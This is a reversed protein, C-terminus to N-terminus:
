IIGYKDAKQPLSKPQVDKDLQQQYFYRVIIGSLAIIIMTIILVKDNLLTIDFVAAALFWLVIFVASYIFTTYTNYIGQAQHLFRWVERGIYLWLWIFLGLGIIGTEVVLQLYLSHASVFKRPLNYRLNKVQSLQEYSAQEPIDGVLSVIFNGYGVGLPHNAAFRLSEEWIILRGQNSQEQLDYITKAREIFNEQFGNSRIIALGRNILPSVIFLLLILFYSVLLKRMVPRSWNLLYAAASILMPPIMGVWMARTGSLILALGALRIGYWLWYARSTITKWLGKVSQPYQYLLPLLLGMALVSIMAFSHSDPMISFMRLSKGASGESFWSNSYKLVEALGNGYYAQSVWTAWYQWFYYQDTFLTAIFQVYGIAIIIGTAGVLHRIVSLIQEKKNIVQVTLFYIIWINFLFIIQRLGHIPFRAWLLSSVMFLVLLGFLWDWPLFRKMTKDTEVQYFIIQRFSYNAFQGRLQWLLRFFWVLGTLLFLPRWFPLGVIFPSPLAIYFPLSLILVLLAEFTPVLIIYVALLGLNVIAIEQPWVGISLLLVSFFQWLVILRGIVRSPGIETIRNKLQRVLDIM